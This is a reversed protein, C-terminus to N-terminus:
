EGLNIKELFKVELKITRGVKENILALKSGSPLGMAAKVVDNVITLGWNALGRLDLGCVAGTIRLEDHMEDSLDMIIRTM